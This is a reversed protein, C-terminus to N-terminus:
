ILNAFVPCVFFRDASQAILLCSGAITRDKFFITFIIDAAADGRDTGMPIIKEDKGGPDIQAGVTRPSLDAGCQKGHFQSLDFPHLLMRPGCGEQKQILCQSLKILFASIIQQPPQFFIFLRDQCRRILRM